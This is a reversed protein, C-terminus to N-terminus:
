ASNNAVLLLELTKGSSGPLGSIKEGSCAAFLLLMAAAMMTRITTKM